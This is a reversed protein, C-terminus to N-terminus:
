WLVLKGSEELDKVVDTRNISPSKLAELLTSMKPDNKLWETLVATFCDECVGRNTKEIAQLSYIIVIIAILHDNM